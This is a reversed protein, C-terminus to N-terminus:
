PNQLVRYFRQTTNTVYGITKPPGSDIWQVKNAQAAISPIASFTENTPFSASGSYQITYVRGTAAPFEIMLFGSPLLQVNTIALTFNPPAIVNFTSTPLATYSSNPVDIPQRSPVFYQLVLNVGEGAALPATYAVYPDGNNTGVANRLWNTLGDVIVRASAANSSSINVLRITQEMLMNQLNLTMEGANTAILQGTVSADVTFTNTAANNLTNTDSIGSANVSATVTMTGSNTPRVLLQYRRGASAALTGVAIDARNSASTNRFVLGAPLVNSLVISSVSVGGRNTVAVAYSLDDNALVPTKPGEISVELDAETGTSNTNFAFLNTSFFNPPQDTIFTILNTLGTMNTTTVSIAISAPANPFAAPIFPIHFRFSNSGNTTITTSYNTTVSQLQVPASFVNSVIVDTLAAASLNTITFEFSVQINSASLTASTIRAGFGATQARSSFQIAFGALLLAIFIRLSSLAKIHTRM